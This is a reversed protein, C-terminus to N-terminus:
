GETKIYRRGYDYTIYDLVEYSHDSNEYQLFKKNDRDAYLRCVPLIHNQPSLIGSIRYLEEVDETKMVICSQARPYGSPILIFSFEKDQGINVVGNLSTKLKNSFPNAKSEWIIQERKIEGSVAIRMEYSGIRKNNFDDTKDYSNFYEYVWEYPSYSAIILNTKRHIITIFMDCDIILEFIKNYLKGRLYGDKVVVSNQQWDFELGSFKLWPLQYTKYYKPTGLYLTTGSLKCPLEVTDQYLRFGM